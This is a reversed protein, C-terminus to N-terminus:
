SMSFAERHSNASVPRTSRSIATKSSVPIAGPRRTISIGPCTRVLHCHSRERAAVPSRRRSTARSGKWRSRALRSEGPSSSNTRPRTLRRPSREPLLDLRAAPTARSGACRPRHPGPSRALRKRAPQHRPDRAIRPAEGGIAATGRPVPHQRRLSERVAASHLRPAAGLGEYGDALWRLISRVCTIGIGGAIFAVRELGGPLTFAGYPGELEVEAGPALTDLANKFESGRLRTTFELEPELPSNSHSFHHTYPGLPGSFTVIFWQGALYEYGPPREFRFSVIDAVRPIKEVLRSPFTQQIIATELAPATTARYSPAKLAVVSDCTKPPSESPSRSLTTRCSGRLSLIAM